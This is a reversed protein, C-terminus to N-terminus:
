QWRCRTNSEWMKNPAHKSVPHTVPVLYSDQALRLSDTNSLRKLEENSDIIPDNPADALVTYRLDVLVVEFRKTPNPTGVTGLPFSIIDGTRIADYFLVVIGCFMNKLVDQLALSFALATLGGTAVIPALALGAYSLSVLGGVIYFVIATVHGIMDAADASVSSAGFFNWLFRRIKSLPGHVNKDMNSLTRLGIPTQKYMSSVVSRHRLMTLRSNVIENHSQYESSPNDKTPRALVFMRAIAAVFKGLGLFIFFITIAPPFKFKFWDGIQNFMDGVVASTSTSNM